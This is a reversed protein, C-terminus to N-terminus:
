QIIGSWEPDLLGASIVIGEEDFLCYSPTGQVLYNKWTSPSDEPSFLVDVVLGYELAILRANEKRDLAVVVPIIGLDEAKKHMKSFNNLLEECPECGISVFILATVLGLYDGLRKRKGRLSEAEFEPANTGPELSPMSSSGPIHLRNTKRALALTILLNMLVICWLILSNIILFTQM